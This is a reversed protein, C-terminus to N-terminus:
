TVHHHALYLLCVNQIGTTILRLLYPGHLTKKCYGTGLMNEHLPSSTTDILICDHQPLTIAVPIRLYL